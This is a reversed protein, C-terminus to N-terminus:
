RDGCPPNYQQRLEREIKMREREGCYHAAVALTRYGQKSWCNQRDHNSVRDRVAESEGIDVVNWKANQANKGVIVYVGSQNLLSNADTFPGDFNYNGINISM